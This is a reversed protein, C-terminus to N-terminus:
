SIKSMPLYRYFYFVIGYAMFVLILSLFYVIISNYWRYDKDKKHAAIYSVVTTISVAISNSILSIRWDTLGSM